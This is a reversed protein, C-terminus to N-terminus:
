SNVQWGSTSHGNDNLTGVFERDGNDQAVPISAPIGTPGTKAPLPEIVENNIDAMGVMAVLRRQIALLPEQEGPGARRVRYEEILGDGQRFVLDYGALETATLQETPPVDLFKAEALRPYRHPMDHVNGDAVIVLRSYDPEEPVSPKPPAFEPDSDIADHVARDINQLSQVLERMKGARIRDARDIMGQAEAKMRNVWALPDDIEIDYLDFLEKTAQYAENERELRANINLAAQHELAIESTARVVQPSTTKIWNLELATLERTDVRVMAVLLAQSVDVAEVDIRLTYGDVGPVEWRYVVDEPEIDYAPEDNASELLEMAVSEDTVFQQEPNEILTQPYVEHVPTDAIVQAIPKPAPQHDKAPRGRKRGPINM